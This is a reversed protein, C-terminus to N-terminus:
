SIATDPHHRKNESLCTIKNTFAMAKEFDTFHYEKYLKGSKVIIWDNALKLLLEATFEFSLPPTDGPM